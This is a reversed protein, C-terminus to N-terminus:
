RWRAFRRRQRIREAVVRNRRMQFQRYTLRVRASPRRMAGLRWRRAASKNRARNRRIIRETAAALSRKALRQQRAKILRKAGGRKPRAKLARLKALRAVAKKRVQRNAAIRRKGAEVKEIPEHQRSRMAAPRRFKSIRQLVNRPKSNTVRLVSKRQQTASPGDDLRHAGAHAIHLRVAPAPLPPSAINDRSPLILPADRLPVTVVPTAAIAPAQPGVIRQTDLPKEDAFQQPQLIAAVEATAIPQSRQTIPLPDRAMAAALAQSVAGIHGASAAWYVAAGVALAALAMYSHLLRKRENRNAHVASLAFHQAEVLTAFGSGIPNGDIYASWREMSRMVVICNFNGSSADRTEAVYVDPVTQKFEVTM